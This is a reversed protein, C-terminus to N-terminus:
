RGRERYKRLREEEAMAMAASVNSDAVPQTEEASRPEETVPAAEPVEAGAEPEPETREAPIQPALGVAQLALSRVDRVGDTLRATAAELRDAAEDNAKDLALLENVASAPLRKALRRLLTKRAMEGWSTQWPMPKGSRSEKRGFTDRIYNIDAETMVELEVFGSPMVAYAYGGWYGGREHKVPIHSFQGGQQTFSYEFHDNEYVLQVDIDSVQGSNRIRKLYGRWQPMLQAVGQYEIIAAEETLPELGLRAADRLSQVISMPTARELLQSNNALLAFAVALFRDAESKNRFMARIQKAEAGGSGKLTQQITNFNEQVVLARSDNSPRAVPPPGANM